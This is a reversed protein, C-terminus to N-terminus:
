EVHRCCTGVVDEMLSERKSFQPLTCGRWRRTLGGSMRLRTILASMTLRDFQEGCTDVAQALVDKEKQFISPSHLRTLPPDPAREHQAVTPLHALREPSSKM